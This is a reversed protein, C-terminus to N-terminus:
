IQTITCKIFCNISVLLMRKGLKTVWTVASILVWIVSPIVLLILTRCINVRVAVGRWRISTRWNSTCLPPFFSFSHSVYGRCCESLLTNDIRSRNVESLRGQNQVSASMEPLRNPKPSSKFHSEPNPPQLAIISRSSKTSRNQQASFISAIFYNCSSVFTTNNKILLFNKLRILLVEITTVPSITSLPSSQQTWM